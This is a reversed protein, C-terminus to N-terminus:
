NLDLREKAAELQKRAMQIKAKILERNEEGKLALEKELDGIRQEYARLRDQLPAHVKELREELEAMDAVARQQTDLLHERQSVLKQVLKDMMLRALHPLLGERVDALNGTGSHSVTAPLLPSLRPRPALRWIVIFLALLAAAAGAAIWRYPVTQTKQQDVRIQQLSAFATKERLQDLAAKIKQDIVQGRKAIVQGADYRDAAWIPDTRRSRALRTM